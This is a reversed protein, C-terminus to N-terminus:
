PRSAPGALAARISKLLSPADAADAVVPVGNMGSDSKRSRCVDLGRIDPLHQDVLVLDVRETGTRRMAERGLFEEAVEVGGDDLLIRMRRSRADPYDDVVLIHPKMPVDYHRIGFASFCIAFADCAATSISLPIRENRRFPM